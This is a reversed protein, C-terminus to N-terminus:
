TVTSLVVPLLFLVVVLLQPVLVLLHLSLLPMPELRQLGSRQMSVTERLLLVEVRFSPKFQTSDM